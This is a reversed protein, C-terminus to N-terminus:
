PNPPVLYDMEALGARKARPAIPMPGPPDVFNKEHSPMRRIRVISSFIFRQSRALTRTVFFPARQWARRPHTFTV